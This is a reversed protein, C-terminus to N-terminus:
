GKVEYDPCYGVRKLDHRASCGLHDNGKRDTWKMLYRCAVCGDNMRKKKRERWGWVIFSMGVILGAAVSAMGIVAFVIILMVVEIEGQQENIGLSCYCLRTQCPGPHVPVAKVM